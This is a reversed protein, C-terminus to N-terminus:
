NFMWKLASWTSGPARSSYLYIPLIESRLLRCGTVLPWCFGPGRSDAVGWGFLLSLSQTVLTRKIIDYQLFTPLHGTFVKIDVKGKLKYPSLKDLPIPSLSHCLTCSPQQHNVTRSNANRHPRPDLHIDKNSTGPVPHGANQFWELPSPTHTMGTHRLGFWDAGGNKTALGTLELSPQFDQQEQGTLQFSYCFRLWFM